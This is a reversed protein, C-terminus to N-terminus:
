EHIYVGKGLERAAIVALVPSFSSTILTGRIFTGDKIFNVYLGYCGLGYGFKDIFDEVLEIEFDSCEYTEVVFWFEKVFIGNFSRKKKVRKAINKVTRNSM